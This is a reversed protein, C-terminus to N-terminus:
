AVRAVRTNPQAGAGSIRLAVQIDRLLVARRDRAQTRYYEVFVDDLWEVEGAEQLKLSAYERMTEHLRYCAVGFADERMVLSKDVLAALVDLAPAGSGRDIALVPEVDDVTFRGAFVCLRRLLQQEPVTLLDHSWDITTRLTQQRPLAARGGGTLLAFRDTLRELIQEVTLVRMRVAALEIALPLGDLRRCLAVVASRNSATLEFSGSTSVARETFLMVAENQLLRSIPQEDGAAPLELPPVPVVREGPLQLPERSTAIVRVNPAARLIDAVLAASADLLHECNDILLLLERDRLYSSLIQLPAASAQDRLDLAAVVAGSVLDPDRIEALDVWWAGDAFGRGLDTAARLALRTKGVGGPGVLSVLRAKALASRLEALERRRGVFSTTEAPLNGIRRRPRAM